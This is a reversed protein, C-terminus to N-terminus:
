KLDELRLLILTSISVQFKNILSPRKYPSNGKGKLQFSHIGKEFKFNGFFYERFNGGKSVLDLVPGAPKDDILPQYMGGFIGDALVASIKYSGPDTVEFKFDIEADPIEPTFHVAVLEKKTKNPSANMELNSAIFIQYPAVREEAPPLATESYAIPTQYWFAVSSIWDSRESSSSLKEGQENYESGRHEITFMLSKQFRIPDPIHWRYATVRDGNLSGEFLSVGQFPGSFERFGWADGFYDETGTGQISPIEEGDIYFRDDGEGFWGTQVQHASYVTGIYHGRGQTNLIEHDGPKAPTQQRYRAHFYLVDDPLADVKEWDVYYYFYAQGFGPLENTVTIKAHKRFPMRWFCTRSRGFSSVSVPLSQFDKTAGHGVGFFDGLPVEVSPKESNDWYIRIVLARTSFPNLSASTNWIHKIIGPGELDALVLTEGPFIEKSDGNGHFDADTSSSRKSQGNSPITLQDLSLHDILSNSQAYLTGTLLLYIIFGIIFHDFGRYFHHIMKITAGKSYIDSTKL